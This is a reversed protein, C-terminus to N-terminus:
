TKKRKWNFLMMKANYSYHSNEGNSIDNLLQISIDEYVPLLMNAVWSKVGLDNHELLDKMEKLDFNEKIYKDIKFAKKIYKEQTKDDRNILAEHQTIIAEVLETKAKEISKFKM